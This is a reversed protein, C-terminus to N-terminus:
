HHRYFGVGRIENWHDPTHCCWCQEVRADMQRTLMQDMMAFHMMFHMPRGAASEDRVFVV